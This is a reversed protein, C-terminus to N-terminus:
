TCADGREDDTHCGARVAALFSRIHEAEVTGVTTPMRHHTLYRDLLRITDSYSRITGPSRNASELDLTWSDLLALLKPSRDQRRPAM